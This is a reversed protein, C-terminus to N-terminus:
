TILLLQTSQYKHNESQLDDSETQEIDNDKKVSQERLDLLVNEYRQFKEDNNIQQEIMKYHLNFLCDVFPAGVGLNRLNQLTEWCPSNDQNTMTSTQHNTSQLDKASPDSKLRSVASQMRSIALSLEKNNSEIRSITLSLKENNARWKQLREKDSRMRPSKNPVARKWSQPLLDFYSQKPKM